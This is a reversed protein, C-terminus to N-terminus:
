ESADRAFRPFESSDGGSSPSREDLPVRSEPHYFLPPTAANEEINRDFTVIMAHVPCAKVCWECGSCRESDFLVHMTSRDINLAGTPCVATCAGCEICLEENRQISQAISEVKVGIRKLYDLGREYDSKNGRLELIMLGEKRPFIQAKLINFTLNYNKVLNTIIPKDVIEPPFRLVLMKAYM